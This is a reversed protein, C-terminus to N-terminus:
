EPIRPIRYLREVIDNILSDTASFKKRLAFIQTALREWMEIAEDPLRDAISGILGVQKLRDRLGVPGEVTFIGESIDCDLTKSLGDLLENKLKHEERSLKEMEVALQELLDHIVRAGGGEALTEEVRRIIEELSIKV